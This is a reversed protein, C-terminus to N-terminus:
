TVGWADQSRIPTVLNPNGNRLEAVISSEWGSSAPKSEYAALVRQRLVDEIGLLLLLEVRGNPTAISDPALADRVVLVATERTGPRGDLPGTKITHGAGLELGKWVQKGIAELFDFAWPPPAASVKPLKFTLEYGFGSVKPDGNGKGYLETLGYTVFHWYDGGDYASVGDFAAANESLDHMRFVLPGRHVPNTQGPYAADFVRTIADWGPAAEAQEHGEETRAKKKFFDLIGM